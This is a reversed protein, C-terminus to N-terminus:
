IDTSCSLSGFPSDTSAEFFNIPWRFLKQTWNLSYVYHHPVAVLINGRAVVDGRSTQHNSYMRRRLSVVRAYFLAVNLIITASLIFVMSSIRLICQIRRVSISQYISTIYIKFDPIKCRKACTQIRGIFILGNEIIIHVSVKVNLCCRFFM